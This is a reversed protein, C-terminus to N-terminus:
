DEIKISIQFLNIITRILTFSNYDWKGYIVNERHILHCTQEIKDLLSRLNYNWDNLFDNTYKSKLFVVIGALRDIRAFVRKNVVM